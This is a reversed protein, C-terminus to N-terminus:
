PNLIEASRIIDARSKLLNIKKLATASDISPVDITYLEEGSPGNTIRGRVQKLLQRIQEETASPQFAVAIHAVPIGLSRTNVQGLDKQPVGIWLILGTQAVLLLAALTPVWQPLLLSRFWQDIKRFWSTADKQRQRGHSKDASITAIVRRALQPSPAPQSQYLTTLNRKMQAVEDLERQCVQCTELHRAVQIQETERLTGNLYWPLLEAEPHVGTPLIEPDSM